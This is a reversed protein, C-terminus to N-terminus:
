PHRASRGCSGGGEAARMLRQTAALARDFSGDTCFQGHALEGAIMRLFSARQWPLMPVMVAFLAEIEHDSFSVPNSM